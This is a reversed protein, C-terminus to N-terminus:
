LVDAQDGPLLVQPVQTFRWGAEQRAFVWVLDFRDDPWAQPTMSNSGMLANAIAVIARHEWAVLTVGPKEAVAAALAVEDGKGFDKAIGLGLLESLPGITHEARVSRVHITQKPAYLTQPIEIEPPRAGNSRPGFFTALAGARQWGRVSLEDPSQEGQSTVGFASGDLAPKEGHRILMVKTAQM